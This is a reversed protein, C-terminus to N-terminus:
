ADVSFFLTSSREARQELWHLDSFLLNMLLSTGAIAACSPQMANM